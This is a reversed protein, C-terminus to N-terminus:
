APRMRALMLGLITKVSLTEPLGSASTSTRVAGLPLMMPLLISLDLPMLAHSSATCLAYVPRSFFGIKSLKAAATAAPSSIRAFM